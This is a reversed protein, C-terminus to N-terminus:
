RNGFFDLPGSSTMVQEGVLVIDEGFIQPNSKIWQELDDKEKKGDDALSSQLPFLKGDIIQWSKIESAM